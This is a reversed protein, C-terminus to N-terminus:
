RSPNEKFRYETKDVDSGKNLNFMIISRLLRSVTVDYKRSILLFEDRLSKDSRLEIIRSEGDRAAKDIIIQRDKSFHFWVIILSSLSLGMERAKREAREKDSPSLRIKVRRDKMVVDLCYHPWHVSNAM